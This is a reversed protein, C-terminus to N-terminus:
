HCGDEGCVMGQPEFSCGDEGCTMGFPASLEKAFLQRYQEVTQEGEIKEGDLFMTPISHVDCNKRVEWAEDADKRFIHQLLAQEFDATDFGCREAVEKLVELEGIDKEEVYFITFVADNYEEWKGHKKAYFFGEFALTTYPHPSIWPLKMEVGLAEAEPKIVNEFRQLRMEDHMPDGKPTPERRLEFPHYELEVDIDRGDLAQKLAHHNIYCFPCVSDSYIELKM